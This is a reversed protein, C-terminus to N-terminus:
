MRHAVIRESWICTCQMQSRQASECTRVRADTLRQCIALHPVGECAEDKREVHHERGTEVVASPTVTYDVHM